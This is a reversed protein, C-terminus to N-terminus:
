GKKEELEKEVLFVLYLHMHKNKCSLHSAM